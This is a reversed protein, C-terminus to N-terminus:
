TFSTRDDTQENLLWKHLSRIEKRQATEPMTGHKEVTTVNCKGKWAMLKRVGNMQNIMKEVPRMSIKFMWQDEYPMREHREWAMEM